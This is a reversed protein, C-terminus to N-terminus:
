KPVERGAFWWGRGSSWPVSEVREDRSLASQINISIEDANRRRLAAIHAVLEKTTIPHNQKGIFDVALDSYSPVRRIRHPVVRPSENSGNLAAHFKPVDDIAAIAKDMARLARWEPMEKLKDDLAALLDNRAQILDTKNTMARNEQAYGVDHRPDRLMFCPPDITLFDLRL